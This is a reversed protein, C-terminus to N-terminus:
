GVEVAFIEQGEQLHVLQKMLFSIYILHAVHILKILRPFIYPWQREM